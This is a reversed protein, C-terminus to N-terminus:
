VVFYAYVSPRLQLKVLRESMAHTWGGSSRTGREQIHCHWCLALSNKLPLKPAGQAQSPRWCPAAAEKQTSFSCRGEEWSVDLGHCTRELVLKFISLVKNEINTQMIGICPRRGLSTVLENSVNECRLSTGQCKVPICCWKVTHGLIQSWLLNYHFAFFSM